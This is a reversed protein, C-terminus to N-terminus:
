GATIRAGCSPNDLYVQSRGAPDLLLPAAPQTVTGSDLERGDAADRLVFTCGSSGGFDVVQVQVRGQTDFADSDGVADAVFPLATKGAGPRQIVQCDPDNAQWRFSGSEHVQV